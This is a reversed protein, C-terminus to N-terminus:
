KAIPSPFVFSIENGSEFLGLFAAGALVPTDDKRAGDEGVGIVPDWWGILHDYTGAAVGEEEAIADAVEKGLYVYRADTALTTPNIVQIMDADPDFGTPKLDKLKYTTGGGVPIFCAGFSPQKLGETEKTAYGVVNASTVASFGVTAFLPSFASHSIKSPNALVECLHTSPPPM